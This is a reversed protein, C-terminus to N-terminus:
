FGIGEFTTTKMRCGDSETNRGERRSDRVEEKVPQVLAGKELFFGASNSYLSSPQEPFM